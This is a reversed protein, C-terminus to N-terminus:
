LRFHFFEMANLHPEARIPLAALLHQRLFSQHEGAVHVDQGDFEDDLVLDFFGRIVKKVDCIDMLRDPFGSFCRHPFHDALAFDVFRQRGAFGLDLLIRLYEQLDM